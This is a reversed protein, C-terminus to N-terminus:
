ILHLPPQREIFEEQLKDYYWHRKLDNGIGDHGIETIILYVDKKATDFLSHKKVLHTRAKNLAGNMADVFNTKNKGHSLNKKRTVVNYSIRTKFPLANDLCKLFDFGVTDKDWGYIWKFEIGIHPRNYEGISFDIHGCSGENEDDPIGKKLYRRYPIHINEDVDDIRYTPWEPHVRFENRQLTLDITYDKERLLYTFYHHLYHENVYRNWRISNAIKSIISLVDHALNNQNIKIELNQM